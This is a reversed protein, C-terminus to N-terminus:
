LVFFLYFSGSLIDAKGDFQDKILQVSEVTGFSRFRDAVESESVNRPLGSVHLRMSKIAPSEPATTM